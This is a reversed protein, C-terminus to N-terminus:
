RRVGSEGKEPDTGAAEGAMIGGLWAVGPLSVLMM